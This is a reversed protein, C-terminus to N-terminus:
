RGIPQGDHVRQEAALPAEGADAEELLSVHVRRHVAGHYHLWAIIALLKIM